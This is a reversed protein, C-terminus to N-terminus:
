GFGMRRGIQWRGLSPVRQQRDAILDLARDTTAEVDADNGEYSGKKLADSYFGDDRRPGSWEPYM